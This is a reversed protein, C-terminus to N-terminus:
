FYASVAQNRAFTRRFGPRRFTRGAADPRWLLPIQRESVRTSQFLSQNMNPIRIMTRYWGAPEYNSGRVHMEGKDTLSMFNDSDTKNAAINARSM